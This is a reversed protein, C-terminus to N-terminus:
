RPMGQEIWGLVLSIDEDPLPPLGLPMGPIEPRTLSNPAYGPSVVDRHAESRRRLLAAPIRDAAAAVGEPTELEIGTPAFGFGGANGPGARGDNLEANMHCHVCIKGFVREEVDAWTVRDATAEIPGVAAPQPPVDLKALVIYDRLALVESETLPMRPMTADPSLATPDKIWAAIHDSSMRERTHMLDPSLPAVGTTHLDGYVHCAACGKDVFLEAGERVNSRRPRPTEPVSAVRTEFTSVVADLAEPSLGFRPMGEPLNPRLDHPDLLYGRVWAPDLRAMAADLSPVELYSAVNREYREWLPFAALAKARKRPSASVDKIWLHCDRCHDLRTAADV